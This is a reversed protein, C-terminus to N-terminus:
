LEINRKWSRVPRVQSAYAGLQALGLFRQLLGLGLTAITPAPLHLCFSALLWRTARSPTSTEAKKDQYTGLSSIEM